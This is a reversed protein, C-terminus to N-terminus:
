AYINTGLLRQLKKLARHHIVKAHNETINLSTAIDKFAWDEFYRLQLCLREKPKLGQLKSVLVRYDEFRQDGSPIEFTDDLTLTDTKVRRARAIQRRAIKFLYAYFHVDSVYRFRKLSRWLEVYINQCVDLASDKNALRFLVFAYVRNVTFDYIERFADDEHEARSLSDQLNM